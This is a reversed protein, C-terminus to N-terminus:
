RVISSKRLGSIYAHEAYSIIMETEASLPLVTDARDAGLMHFM